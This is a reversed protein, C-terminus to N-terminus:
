RQPSSRRSRSRTGFSKETRLQRELRRASSVLDSKAGGPAVDVRLMVLPNAGNRITTDLYGVKALEAAEVNWSASYDVSFHSGSFTKLSAPKAISPPRRPKHPPPPKPSTNGATAKEVTVTVTVPPRASESAGCGVLLCSVALAVGLAATLAIRRVGLAPAIFIV